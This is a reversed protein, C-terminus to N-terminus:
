LWNGSNYTRKANETDTITESGEDQYEPATTNEIFPRDKDLTGKCIDRNLTASM